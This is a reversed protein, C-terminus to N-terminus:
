PLKVTASSPKGSMDRDGTITLSGGAYYSEDLRYKAINMAITQSVIAECPDGNGKDVLVASCQVPFSELCGGMKLSFTHKKCGGAYSISILINKGSADINARHVTAAFSSFSCLALIIAITKMSVGSLNREPSIGLNQFLLALCYQLNEVTM